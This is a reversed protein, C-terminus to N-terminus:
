SVHIIIYKLRFFDVKNYSSINIIKAYYLTLLLLTANYIKQIYYKKEFM